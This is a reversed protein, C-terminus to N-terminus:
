PTVDQLVSFPYPTAGGARTAPIGVAFAFRATVRLAVVDQQALNYIV